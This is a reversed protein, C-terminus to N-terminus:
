RSGDDFAATKCRSFFAKSLIASWLQRIQGELRESQEQLLV